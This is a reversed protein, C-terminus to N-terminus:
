HHLARSVAAQLNQKAALIEPTSRRAHRRIDLLALPIPAFVGLLLCIAWGPSLQYPKVFAPLSLAVTAIIGAIFCLGQLRRIRSFMSFRPSGSQARLIANEVTAAHYELDEITADTKARPLVTERAYHVMKMNDDIFRDHREMIVAGAFNIGCALQITSSLDMLEVMIERWFLISYVINARSAPANSLKKFVRRLSLGDRERCQRRARPM